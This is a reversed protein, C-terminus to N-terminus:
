GKKESLFEDIVDKVKVEIKNINTEDKFNKNKPINFDATLTLEKHEIIGASEYSGKKV